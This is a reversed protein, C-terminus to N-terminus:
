CPHGPLGCRDKGETARLYGPRPAKRDVEGRRIWISGVMVLLPAYIPNRKHKAAALARLTHPCVAMLLPSDFVALHNIVLIYPPQSPFNDLGVYERRTVLSLLASVILRIVRYLL